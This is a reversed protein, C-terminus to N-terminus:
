EIFELSQIEGSIVIDSQDLEKIQIYSGTIKIIGLMSKMRLVHPTYELIGKHNEITLENNAIIKIIPMDLIIEAPLDLLHAFQKRLKLRNAM